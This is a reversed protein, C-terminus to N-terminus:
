NNEESEEEAIEQNQPEEIVQEPSTPEEIVQEQIVPEEVVQEQTNPEEIIQEEVTPEEQVVEENTVEEQSVIIEENQEETIQVNETQEYEQQPDEEQFPENNLPNTTLLNTIPGIIYPIENLPHPRRDNSVLAHTRIYSFLADVGKENLHLGDTDFYNNNAYEGAEDLLADHSDLYYLENEECMKIIAANFEKIQDNSVNTYRTYMTVPPISNIIIDSYPYAEKISQIADLYNNIFVESTYNALGLNNTGFTIIIRRPQLISVSVPMTYTGTSFQMCELSKISEVSMGAVAITNSTSSYRRGEEDIYQLFRATNSDGLFLTEEIYAYDAKETENLIWQNNSINNSTSPQEENDNSSNNFTPILNSFSDIDKYRLITALLFSFLSIMLLITFTIKIPVSLKNTTRNKKM